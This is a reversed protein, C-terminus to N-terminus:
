MGDVYLMIGVSFINEDHNIEIHGNYREVSRSINRLGYGHYDGSKRTIIAKGVGDTVDSYKVIGDFTNCVEIILTNKNYSINVDIRKEEVKAVADLANDLLNGLIAVVDVTEVSLTQPIAAKVYLKIDLEDATKLKFNIVSDVAINGTKSYIKSDGIDEVLRNLYDMAAENEAVYDKLAFLHMKIDHKISKIADASEQILQSQTFYFDKEKAYQETLLNREKELEFSISLSQMKCMNFYWPLIIGITTAVMLNLGNLMFISQSSVLLSSIILAVAACLALMLNYQPPAVIFVTSCVILILITAAPTTPSSWVSVYLGCLMAYTYFLTMMVYLRVSSIDKGRKKYQKSICMIGAAIIVSISTLVLLRIIHGLSYRHYSAQLGTDARYIIYNIILISVMLFAFALGYFSMASINESFIMKICRNYEDKGITYYRWEYLAKNLYRYM